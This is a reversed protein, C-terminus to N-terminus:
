LQLLLAALAVSLASCAILRWAPTRASGSPSEHDADTKAEPLQLENPTTTPMPFEIRLIQQREPWVLLVAAVGFALQYELLQRRTAATSLEPALEGTKVEAVLIEQTEIDQVLFDARLEFPEAVGNIRPAWIAHAQRQLIEFGASHLQGESSSEGSQARAARNIAHHTAAARARRQMLQGLVIAIVTATAIGVAFAVVADQYNM